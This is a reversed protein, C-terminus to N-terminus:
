GWQRGYPTERIVRDRIRAGPGLHYWALYWAVAGWCTLKFLPTEFVLRRAASSRLVLEVVSVANHGAPEFGLDLGAVDDGVVEVGRWEGVGDEALLRLHGITAPDFGMLRASVADLAVIDRSALVRDVRRPRGTKPGDGELGITADCVALAPRLVQHLDSLVEDIALHHQHRGVDLCGWQNKIAGSIVTKDHTKLVPVTVLTSRTLIEPVRVVPLRRPRAVPVDVFRGETMNVFTVDHDRLLREMGARRFAKAVDVLVQDSEVITLSRARDRLALIVGEVVWPSTISGPYLLDFGLNPKLCVDAGPEIADLAGALEMAERVADQVSGTVKAVGVTPVSRQPEM